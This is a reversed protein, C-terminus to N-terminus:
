VVLSTLIWKGNSRKKFRMETEDGNAIGRIVFIKETIGHSQEGYVINYIMNNPLYPAFQEWQEPMLFGETIAFDDDPDPGVFQLPNAISQQQFLSDTAFQSYFELFSANPLERYEETSVRTMYWRGGVRQFIYQTVYGSELFIKQVVARTLTTDNVREKHEESDFILTYYDQEMFFTEFEWEKPKSRIM